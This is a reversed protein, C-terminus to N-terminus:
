VPDTSVADTLHDQGSVRVQFPVGRRHVDGAEQLRQTNPHGPQGGPQGDAAVELVGILDGQALGELAAAVHLPSCALQDPASSAAMGSTATTVSLAAQRGSSRDLSSPMTTTGM